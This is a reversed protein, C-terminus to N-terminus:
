HQNTRESHAGNEVEETEKQIEKLEFVEKSANVM